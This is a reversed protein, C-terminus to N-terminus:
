KRSDYLVISYDNNVLKASLVAMELVTNISSINLDYLLFTFYENPLLRRMSHHWRKNNERLFLGVSLELQSLWRSGRGISSEMNDKVFSYIWIAALLEPNDKAEVLYQATQLTGKNLTSGFYLFHRPEKTIYNIRDDYEDKHLWDFGYIYLQNDDMEFNIHNCTVSETLEPAIRNAILNWNSYVEEWELLEM